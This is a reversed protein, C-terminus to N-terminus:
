KKKGKKESTSKGTSAAIWAPSGPMSSMNNNKAM